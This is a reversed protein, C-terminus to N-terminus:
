GPCEDENASKSVQLHSRKKAEYIDPMNVKVPCKARVMAACVWLPLELKTGSPLTSSAANGVGVNDDDVMSPDLFSLGSV